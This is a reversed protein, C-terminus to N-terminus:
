NKINKTNKFILILWFLWLGILNSLLLIIILFYDIIDPEKDTFDSVTKFMDKALYFLGGGALLSVISIVLGIIFYIKIFLM